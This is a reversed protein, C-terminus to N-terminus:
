ICPKFPAKATLALLDSCKPLMKAGASCIYHPSLDQTHHTINVPHRWRRVGRFESCRHEAVELISAKFCRTLTHMTGPRSSLLRSNEAKARVMPMHLASKSRHLIGPRPNSCPCHNPANFSRLHNAFPLYVPDGAVVQMSLSPDKASQKTDCLCSSRRSSRKPKTLCNSPTSM